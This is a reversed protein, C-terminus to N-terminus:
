FIFFWWFFFFDYNICKQIFDQHTSVEIWNPLSSPSHRPPVSFMGVLPLRHCIDTLTPYRGRLVWSNLPRSRDYIFILEPLQLLIDAVVLEDDGFGNGRNKMKM